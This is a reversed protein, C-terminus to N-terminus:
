RFWSNRRPQGRNRQAQVLQALQQQMAALTGEVARLRGEFIEKRTEDRRQQEALSREIELMRDRLKRNEHKLNFNDQVVVGITERMSDQINLVSQQSNAVTSLLDNVQRNVIGGSNKEVSNNTRSTEDVPYSNGNRAATSQTVTSQMPSSASSTVPDPQYDPVRERFTVNNEPPIRPVEETPVIEIESYEKDTLKIRREMLQSAIQDNTYGSDALNGIFFLTSIDNPGFRPNYGRTYESLSARFMQVWTNLQTPEVQLLKVIEDKTFLQIAGTKQVTSETATSADIDISPELGTASRSGIDETPAAILEAESGNPAPSDQRQSPQLPRYSKRNFLNAM